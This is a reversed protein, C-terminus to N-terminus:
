LFLHLTETTNLAGKGNDACSSGYSSTINCRSPPGISRSCLTYVQAYALVKAAFLAKEMEAVVAEKEAESLASAVPLEGVDVKGKYLEECKLRDAKQASTYRAELAASVCPVAIGVDAAEQVTWKGTGKNGAADVIKDILYGECGEQDDM